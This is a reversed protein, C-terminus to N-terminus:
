KWMLMSHSVWNSLNASGVPISFSILTLHNMEESELMWANVAIIFQELVM